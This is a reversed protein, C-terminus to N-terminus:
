PNLASELQWFNLGSSVQILTSTRWNLIHILHVKDERIRKPTVKIHSYVGYNLTADMQLPMGKIIRNYIVSAIKPMEERDGAEKQIISAVTLYILWEKKDYRNLYKISIQRYVKESQNVLFRILKRENIGVPLHYTDPLIGAEPYFSTNLYENLLKSYDLNYRKSIDKFFIEKTEGPILTIKWFDGKADIIKKLFDIRNIRPSDLLIEGSKPKGMLMLIYKDIFTLFFDKNKLSNITNTISGKPLNVRKVPVSIPILIYITLFLILITSIKLITSILTKLLSGKM